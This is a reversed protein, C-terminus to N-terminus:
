KKKSERVVQDIADDLAGQILENDEKTLWGAGRTTTLIRIGEQKTRKNKSELYGIATTYSLFGRQQDHFVQAQKQQQEHIERAQEQQEEHLAKVQEDQKSLRRSQFIWAMGSVVAAVLAAAFAGDWPIGWLTVQQSAHLM